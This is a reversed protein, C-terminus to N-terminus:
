IGVYFVDLDRDVRKKKSVQFDYTSVDPYTTTEAEAATIAEIMPEPPCAKPLAGATFVPPRPTLPPQAQDPSATPTEAVTQLTPVPTSQNLNLNDMDMLAPTSDTTISDM